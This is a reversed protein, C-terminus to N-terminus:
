GAAAVTRKRRDDLVDRVLRCVAKPSFPKGLVYDVGSTCLTEPSLSYELTTVMVIPVRSAFRTRIGRALQLGDVDPMHCDTVVACIDAAYDAFLSLAERGDLAVLIRFGCARLAHTLVLRSAPEDEAILILEASM